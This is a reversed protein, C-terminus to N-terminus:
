QDGQIRVFSGRSRRHLIKKDIVDKVYHNYGSPKGGFSSVLKKIDKASVPTGAPYHRIASTVNAMIGGIVEKSVRKRPKAAQVKGQKVEAGTVQQPPQMNLAINSVSALAKELDKGEVFFEFKWLSM